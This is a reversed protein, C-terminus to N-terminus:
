YYLDILIIVAPIGIVYGRAKGSRLNTLPTRDWKGAGIYYQGVGKGLMQSLGVRLLPSHGAPTVRLPLRGCPRLRAILSVYYEALKNKVMEIIMTVRTESCCLQHNMKLRSHTARARSSININTLGWVEAVIGM